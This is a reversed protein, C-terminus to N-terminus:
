KKLKIFNSFLYADTEYYTHFYIEDGLIYKFTEEAYSLPSSFGYLKIKNNEEITEFIFFRYLNKEKKFRFVLNDNVLTSKFSDDFVSIADTKIEDLSIVSGKFLIPFKLISLSDSSAIKKIYDYQNLVYYEALVYSQYGESISPYKFYGRDSYKIFLLYEKGDYTLDRFEMKNFFDLNAINNDYSRWQGDEDYYWGKAKNLTSLPNSLTPLTKNIREQGFANLSLALYFTMLFKIFSKRM